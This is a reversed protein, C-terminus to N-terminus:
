NAEQVYRDPRLTVSRLGREVLAAKLEPQENADLDAEGTLGMTVSRYGVVDDM